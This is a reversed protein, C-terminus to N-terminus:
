IHSNPGTSLYAAFQITSGTVDLLLEGQSDAPLRDVCGVWQTLLRAPRARGRLSLRWNGAGKVQRSLYQKQRLSLLLNLKQLLFISPLCKLYCHSVFLPKLIKGMLSTFLSLKQGSLSDPHNSNPPSFHFLYSAPLLPWVPFTRVRNDTPLAEMAQRWTSQSAMVFCPMDCKVQLITTPTPTLISM